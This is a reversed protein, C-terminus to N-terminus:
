GHLLSHDSEDIWANFHYFLLAVILYPVLCYQTKWHLKDINKNQTSKTLYLHLRFQCERIKVPRRLWRTDCMVKCMLRVYRWPKRSTATRIIKTALLVLRNPPKSDTTYFSRSFVHLKYRCPTLPAGAWRPWGGDTRYHTSFLCHLAVGVHLHVEIRSRDM